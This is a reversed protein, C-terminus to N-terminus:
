VNNHKRVINREASLTPKQSNYIHIAKHTPM